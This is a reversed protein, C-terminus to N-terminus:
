DCRYTVLDEPGWGIAQFFEGLLYVSGFLLLDGSIDREVECTVEATTAAGRWLQEPVERQLEVISRARENDVIVGWVPVGLDQLFGRLGALEKDRMSAWVVARPTRDGGLLARQLARLGDGNHAADIIWQGSRDRRDLCQFRGPWCWHSMGEDMARTSFRDGLFHQTVLGATHRHRAVVPSFDYTSSESTAPGETASGDVVIAEKEKAVDLLTQRAGAAEQEGVVAVRGARFIGAKERAIEEISDGLYETHDRGITTVAAISPELANVADLRGGLGVEFIAVDVQQQCFLEAAAVTTVEFFTLEAFAVERGDVLREVTPQVESVALAKGDIRFRERLDVLHPSTYLGVRLGHAQLIAAVMSAVTGKGNTGGIHISRYAQQPTNLADLAGRVRGLGPKIGFRRRHSVQHVLEDWSM